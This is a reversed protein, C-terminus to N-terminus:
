AARTGTQEACLDRCIFEMCYGKTVSYYTVNGECEDLFDAFYVYAREQTERRPDDVGVFKVDLM